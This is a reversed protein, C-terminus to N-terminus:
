FFMKHLLYPVIMGLVTGAYTQLPTHCKKNVRSLAMLGSFIIGFNICLYRYEPFLLYVSTIFAVTSTMHGSPFGPKGEQNGNRSFMDCNAAGPPRKLFEYSLNRSYLKTISHIQLPIYSLLIVYFWKIDKTTIWMIFPLTVVISLSQSIIEDFLSM